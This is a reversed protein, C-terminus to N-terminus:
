TSFILLIIEYKDLKKADITSLAFCETLGNIAMLLIALCHTRMLRPGLGSALEKGGYLYLVMVAYSQGFCLVLLGLSTVCRLLHQLVFAVEAM